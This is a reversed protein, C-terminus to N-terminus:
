TGPVTNTFLDTTTFDRTNAERMIACPPVFETRPLTFFDSSFFSVTFNYIRIHRTTRLVLVACLSCVLFFEFPNKSIFSRYPLLVLLPTKNLSVRGDLKKMTGYKYYTSESENQADICRCTKVVGLLIKRQTSIPSGNIRLDSVIHM